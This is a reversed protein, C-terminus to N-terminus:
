NNPITIPAIGLRDFESLIKKVLRDDVNNYHGKYHDKLKHVAASLGASDSTKRLLYLMQEKLLSDVMSSEIYKKAVAYRTIGGSFPFMKSLYDDITDEIHEYGAILMEYLSDKRDLDLKKLFAERKLSVETRLITKGKLSEPCRGNKKLEYIKDYAKVAVTKNKMEFLRRRTERDSGYIVKFHRPIFCKRFYHIYHTMAFRKIDWNNKTLEMQSLSLDKAKVSDLGLSELIDDLIELLTEVDEKTPRWLRVPQYEGSLLTSPNIIFGIGSSKNHSQYIRMRIGDNVLYVSKLHRDINYPDSKLLYIEGQDVLYDIVKQVDTYKLDKAYLEITHIGLLENIDKGM